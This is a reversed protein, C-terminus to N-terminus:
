SLEDILSQMKSEQDIEPQSLYAKVDPNSDFKFDTAFSLCIYQVLPVSDYIGYIAASDEAQTILGIVCEDTQNKIEETMEKRLYEKVLLHFDEDAKNEFIHMQDSSIVLM